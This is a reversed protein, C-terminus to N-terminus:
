KVGKVAMGNVEVLNENLPIMVFLRGNVKKTEVEHICDTDVKIMASGTKITTKSKDVMNGLMVKHEEGFRKRYAETVSEAHKEDMGADTLMFELKESSLKLEESTEGMIEAAQSTFDRIISFDIADEQTLLETMITREEEASILPEPIGTLEFAFEPQIEKKAFYLVSHLDMSRDNFAPYLFGHIPKDVVWDRTRNEVKNEEANISLGPKSLGVPCIACLVYDYVEDSADEMVTEDTARGPVDYAGHILVILYNEGYNYTSIIRQYFTDLTTEDKLQSRRLENLLNEKESGGDETPFEMDYLTKGKGGSLTRKFIDFYKFQEEEDLSLFTKVQRLLIDKEHNVYCTAIKTINCNVPTFQKKIEAIEKKNM